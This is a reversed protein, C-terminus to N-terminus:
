AMSGCPRSSMRRSIPAKGSISTRSRSPRPSTPIPRSTSSPTPVPWPRPSKAIDKVDRSAGCGRIGWVDAPAAPDRLLIITSSSTRQVAGTWRALAPHPPQRHFRRRRQCFSNRCPHPFNQNASRFADRVFYLEARQAMASSRRFLFSGPVTCTTVSFQRLMAARFVRSRVASLRTDGATASGAEAGAFIVPKNFGASNEKSTTTGWFKGARQSAWGALALTPAEDPPFARRSFIQAGRAAPRIKGASRRRCATTSRCPPCRGAPTPDIPHPPRIEGGGRPQFIAQIPRGKPMRM